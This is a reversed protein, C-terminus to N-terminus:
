ASAECTLHALGVGVLGDTLDFSPTGIISVRALLAGNMTGQPRLNVRKHRPLAARLWDSAAEEDQPDVELCALHVTYTRNRDGILLLSSNRVQLVEAALAQFPTFVLLLTCVIAVIIKSM